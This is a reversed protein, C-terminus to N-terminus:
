REDNKVAGAERRVDSYKDVHGCPNEWGDCSLRMSGDYSFTKHVPGRPGSCIPCVWKIRVDASYLGMHEACAPITVTKYCADPIEKDNGAVRGVEVQKTPIARVLVSRRAIEVGRRVVDNPKHKLLSAAIEVNSRKAARDQERKKRNNM